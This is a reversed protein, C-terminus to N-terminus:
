RRSHAICRCYIIFRRVVSWVCWTRVMPLDGFLRPIISHIPHENLSLQCGPYDDSLSGLNSTEKQHETTMLSFPEIFVCLLKGNTIYDVLDGSLVESRYTTSAMEELARIRKYSANNTYYLFATSFKSDLWAFPLDWSIFTGSIAVAWPFCRGLWVCFSSLQLDRKGLRIRLSSWNVVHISSTM